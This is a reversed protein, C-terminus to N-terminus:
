MFGTSIHMIVNNLMQLDQFQSNLSFHKQMLKIFLIKTVIYMKNGHINLSSPNQLSGGNVTSYIDEKLVGEDFDYFNVGNETLIYLGKGYDKNYIPPEISEPPCAM